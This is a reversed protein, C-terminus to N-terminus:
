NELTGKSADPLTAAHLGLRLALSMLSLGNPREGSSKRARTSMALDWLRGGCSQLRQVWQLTAELWRRGLRISMSTMRRLHTLSYTETVATDVAGIADSPLISCAAIISTLACAREGDIMRYQKTSSTNRGCLGDWSAGENCCNYVLHGNRFVDTLATCRDCLPVLPKRDMAITGLLLERSTTKIFAPLDIDGHYPDIFGAYTAAALVPERSPDAVVGLAAEQAVPLDMIAPGCGSENLQLTHVTWGRLKAAALTDSDVGFYYCSISAPVGDGNCPSQLQEAKINGGARLPLLSAQVTYLAMSAKAYRTSAVTANFLVFWLREMYHGAETNSGAEVDSRMSAYDSRKTHRVMASSTAFVGGGCYYRAQQVHTIIGHQKAWRILPRAPALTFSQNSYCLQQGRNAMFPRSSCGTSDYGDLRLTACHPANPIQSCAEFM